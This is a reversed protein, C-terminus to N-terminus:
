LAVAEAQISSAFEQDTLEPLVFTPIVDVRVGLLKQAEYQFGGVGFVSAQEDLEILLDVDSHAQNEGRAISGFVYVRRIGYGAALRELQPKYRQLEQLNM